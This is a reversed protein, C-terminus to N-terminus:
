RGAAALEAERDYDFDQPPNALEWEVTESIAQSLEVREAWGLERRIRGSDGVLHQRVDIDPVLDDPAAADPITVVAGEWGMVAGVAATWEAETGDFSGVNFVGGAAVPHLCGLAIADAVNSRFAKGFRWAGLGETMVIVPMGDAIRRAVGYLRHQRDKPGFVVPLRLVVGPIESSGLVREEVHIKDYDYMAEGPEFRDRYPYRSVRLESDETFPIPQTATERRHVVDFGRYVDMSSVAVVRAVRGAEAASMVTAAHDAHVPVMDLMVDPSVAAVHTALDARDAHIHRVDGLEDEHEGRHLVTVDAGLRVLTRVVEPGIFNTGGVVLVKRM